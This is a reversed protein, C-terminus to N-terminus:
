QFQGLPHLAAVRVAKIIAISPVVGCQWVSLRRLVARCKVAYSKGAIDCSVRKGQLCGGGSSLCSIVTPRQSEVFLSISACRLCSAPLLSTLGNLEISSLPM